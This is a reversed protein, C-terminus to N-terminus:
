VKAADFIESVPLAFGKLTISAATDGRGLDAHTHYKGETLVLIEIRQTFPDVIWYEPIGAKAYALRKDVRDREEGDESVIEIALDAATWAKQGRNSYRERSIFVVDPERVQGQWLRVRLGSYAAIGLNHQEAFAFLSRYLKGGILQHEETPMPLRELYGDNLEYGPRDPLSFYDAETWHGQRPYLDLVEM